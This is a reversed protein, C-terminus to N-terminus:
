AERQRRADTNEGKEAILRADITPVVESLFARGEATLRVGDDTTHFHKHIALVLKAKPIDRTSKPIRPFGCLAAIAARRTVETWETLFGNRNMVRLHYKVATNLILLLDDHTFM